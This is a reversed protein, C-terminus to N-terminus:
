VEESSGSERSEAQTSAQESAVKFGSLPLVGRTIGHIGEQLSPEVLSVRAVARLHLIMRTALISHAIAQPSARSFTLILVM